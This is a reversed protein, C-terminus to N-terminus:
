IAFGLGAAPAGIVDVDVRGEAVIWRQGETGVAEQQVYVATQTARADTYPAIQIYHSPDGPREVSGVALEPSASEFVWHTETPLEPLRILIQEGRRLAVAPAPDALLDDFDLVVAGLPALPEGEGEMEEEEAELEEEMDLEDTPARAALAVLGAIAGFVLLIGLM